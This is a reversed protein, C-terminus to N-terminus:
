GLPTKNKQPTIKKNAFARSPKKRTSYLHFRHLLAGFSESMRQFEEFLELLPSDKGLPKGLSRKLDRDVRKKLIRRIIKPLEHLSSRTKVLYDDAGIKICKAALVEDGEGGLIVISTQPHSRKLKYLLSTHPPKEFHSNLLILEFRQKKLLQLAQRPHSVESIKSNALSCALYERLLSAHDPNDEIILISIM